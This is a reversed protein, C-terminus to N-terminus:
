SKRGDQKCTKCAKMIIHSTITQELFPIGLGKQPNCEQHCCYSSQVLETHGLLPM